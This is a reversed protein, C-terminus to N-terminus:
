MFHVTSQYHTKDTNIDAPAGKTASNKQPIGPLECFAVRAQQQQQQQQLVQLLEQDELYAQDIEEVEVDQQMANLFQGNPGLRNSQRDNQTPMQNNYRNRYQPQYQQQQRYQNQPLPYQDQNYYVLGNTGYNQPRQNYTQFMMNRNSVQRSPNNYLRPIMKCVRAIHGVRGCTFCRPKGSMHFNALPRPNYALRNPPQRDDHATNTLLSALAKSFQQTMANVEQYEKKKDDDLIKRTVEEKSALLVAQDLTAPTQRLVVKKLEPRLGTLFAQSGASNVAKSGQSEFALRAIRQVEAAFDAVSEHPGQKRGNLQIALYPTLEPIQFIENLEEFVQDIDIKKRDPLALFVEKAHGKLYFPLMALKQDDTWEFATAFANFQRRFDSLSLTTDRLDGSFPKVDIVASNLPAMNRSKKAILALSDQMDRFGNIVEQVEQEM